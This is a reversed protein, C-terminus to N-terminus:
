EDEAIRVALVDCHASHLTANATSGLLLALGHRGHSGVVILDANLEKAKHIIVSKPSGIEVFQQAPAVKLSDGLKGMEKIALSVIEEEVDLIGPYAQGIGYSTIHEVAHIISVTANCMKALALAKNAASMDCKPHLDVALLIHKYITM